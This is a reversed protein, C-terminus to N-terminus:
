SMRGALLPKLLQLKWGIEISGVAAGMTVANEVGQGVVQLLSELDTLLGFMDYGYRGEVFALTRVIVFAGLAGLQLFSYWLIPVFFYAPSASQQCYVM